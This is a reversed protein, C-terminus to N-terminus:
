IILMMKPLLSGLLFLFMVPIVFLSFYPVIIINLLISLPQFLSFYHLQLPLIAMQSVFSIKFISELNSTSQSLWKRSIILLFTFFFSLQFCIYFMIQKDFFMLLLFIMSILDHYNIKQKFKTLLIVFLVMLSARWVSPQGGALMAYIPLFFLLIS